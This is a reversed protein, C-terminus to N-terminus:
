AAGRITKEAPCVDRHDRHVEARDRDEGAPVWHASWREAVVQGDADLRAQEYYLAYEGDASPVVDFPKRYGKVTTAWQVPAGCGKCV